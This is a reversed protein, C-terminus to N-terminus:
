DIILEDKKYYEKRTIKGPCDGNCEDSACYAADGSLVFGKSQQRKTVIYNLRMDGLEKRRKNVEVVELEKM